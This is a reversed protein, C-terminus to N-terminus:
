SHTHFYHRNSVTPCHDDVAVCVGTGHAGNRRRQQGVINGILMQLFLLFQQVASLTSLNVTALGTVTMASMSLFLCDVYAIQYNTNVAYMIGSFVLPLQALSRRGCTSESVFTFALLHIRYFNLQNYIITRWRQTRTPLAFREPWPAM